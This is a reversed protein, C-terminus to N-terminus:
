HMEEGKEKRQISWSSNGWGWLSFVRVPSERMSVIILVAICLEVLVLSVFLLSAISDRVLNVTVLVM